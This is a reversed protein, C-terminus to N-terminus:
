KGLSRRSGLTLYKGGYQQYALLLYMHLLGVALEHATSVQRTPAFLRSRRSALQIIIEVRLRRPDFDEGTARGGHSLFAPFLDLQVQIQHKLTSLHCAHRSM